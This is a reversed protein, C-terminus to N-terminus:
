GAQCATEGGEGGGLNSLAWASFGAPFPHLWGPRYPQERCPEGTRPVQSGERGGSWGLASRGQWWWEGQSERLLTPHPPDAPADATIVQCREQLTVHAGPLQPSLTIAGGGRKGPAPAGSATLQNSSASVARRIRLDRPSMCRGDGQTDSCRLEQGPWTTPTHTSKELPASPCHGSAGWGGNSVICDVMCLTM